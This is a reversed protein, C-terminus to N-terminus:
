LEKVFYYLHPRLMPQDLYTSTEIPDASRVFGMKAYLGHMEVSSVLSDAILRKLGMNRAVAERAEVLARGTGTGRLAQDVYMRKMEGTEPDLLKMMGCGLLAGSPDRALVICGKPPLYDTANDWFEAVASKPAEPPVALGVEDMKSVITAYYRALIPGLEEQSPLVDCYEITVKPM